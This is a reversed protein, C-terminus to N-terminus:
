AAQRQRGRRGLVLSLGAIGLLALLSPEPVQAPTGELRLALDGAAKTWTDTDEGRFWLDGNGSNAGQWFWDSAGLNQVFLYYTGSSLGLPAALAFDYQFIDSGSFDLLSTPTRTFSVSSFEQLVTGTGAIGSYLRVLFDDDVGGVNGDYGGWWTMSQLSVAGGLTFDDAMQQPFNTNAYYGGGGDQPLQQYLVTASATSTVLALIAAFAWGVLSRPSSGAQKSM